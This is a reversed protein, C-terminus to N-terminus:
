ALGEVREAEQVGADEAMRAGYRAVEDLGSLDVGVSKAWRIMVYLYADAISRAGTVWDRGKLQADVIEFMKRLRRKAHDKTKEIVTEDGLYGTAGFLPTFAPHMDSNVFGLWRHVEAAQRPSGDGLLAADPYAEALYTLIGANQTMIEGDIDLAPVAGMPNIRLFDPQHLADHDLKVGECEAGTWALVIHTALPCAGPMYYLKM